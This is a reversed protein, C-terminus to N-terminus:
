VIKAGNHFQKETELAIRATGTRIKKIRTEAHTTGEPYIGIAEGQELVDYCAQFTAVNKQGYELDDQKRYVPIVGANHLFLALIKNRFMQSTALYHIKREEAYSIMLTDTLNNPHNMAFLSPGKTINHTGFIHISRFFRRIWFRAFGRLFRYGLSVPEGM